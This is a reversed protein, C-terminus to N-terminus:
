LYTTLDHSPLVKVPVVCVNITAGHLTEKVARELDADELIISINKGGLELLM